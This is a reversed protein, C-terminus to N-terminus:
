EHLLIPCNCWTKAMRQASYQHFDCWLPRLHWHNLACNCLMDMLVEYVSYSMCVIFATHRACVLDM